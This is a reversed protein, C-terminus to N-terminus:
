RLLYLKILAVFWVTILYTKHIVDYNKLKKFGLFWWIDRFYVKQDINCNGNVYQTLVCKNDNTKWHMLVILPAFLYAYLIYKNNSIWGFQAFINIVHHILLVSNTKVTKRCNMYHGKMTLIDITYFIIGVIVIALCRNM